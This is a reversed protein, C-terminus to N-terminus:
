WRVARAGRQLPSSQLSVKPEPYPRASSVAAPVAEKQLQIEQRLPPSSFHFSRVSISSFQFAPLLSLPPGTKRGWASNSENNSM